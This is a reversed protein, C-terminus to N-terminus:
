AWSTMLCVRASSAALEFFFLHRGPRSDEQRLVGFDPLQHGAELSRDGVAHGNLLEFYRRLDEDTRLSSGYLRNLEAVQSLTFDELSVLTGINFPSQNLDSIFLHAETAYAIALTLRSWSTPAPPSM